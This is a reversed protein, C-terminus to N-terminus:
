SNVLFPSEVLKMGNAWSGTDSPLVAQCEITRGGPLVHIVTL